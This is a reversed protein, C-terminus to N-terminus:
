DTERDNNKADHLLCPIAVVECFRFIAPAFYNMQNNM